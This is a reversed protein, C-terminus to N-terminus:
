GRVNRDSRGVVGCSRHVSWRGRSQSEPHRGSRALFGHAAGFWLQCSTTDSYRQCQRQRPQRRPGCKRQMSCCRRCPQWRSRGGGLLWGRCRSALMPMTPLCAAYPVQQAHATGSMAWPLVKCTAARPGAVHPPPTSRVWCCPVVQFRAPHASQLHRVADSFALFPDVPDVPTSVEEDETWESDDDSEDHNGAQVHLYHMFCPSPEVLQSLAHSKVSAGTGTDSSSGCASITMMNASGCCHVAPQPWRQDSLSHRPVKIRERIRALREMYADGGGEAEDEDDALGGNAGRQEAEDIQVTPHFRPYCALMWYALVQYVLQEAEDIQMSQPASDVASMCRTNPGLRAHLMLASTSALM